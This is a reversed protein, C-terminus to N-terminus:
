CIQIGQLKGQLKGQLYLLERSQRRFFFIETRIVGPLCQGKVRGASFM